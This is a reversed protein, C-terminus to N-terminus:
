AARMRPLGASPEAEVLGAEVVDAGVVVATVSELAEVDTAVTVTVVVCVFLADGDPVMVAEASAVWTGALVKEINQIVSV